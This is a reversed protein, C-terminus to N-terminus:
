LGRKIKTIVDKAADEYKVLRTSETNTEGCKVCVDCVYIRKTLLQVANEMSIGQVSLGTPPIYDYRPEFQCSRFWGCKKNKFLSLLGM